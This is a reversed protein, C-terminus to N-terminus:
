ILLFIVEEELKKNLYKFLNEYKKHTLILINIKSIISKLKAIKQKNTYNYKDMKLIFKKIISDIKDKLENTM